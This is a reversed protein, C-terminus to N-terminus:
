MGLALGYIAQTKALVTEQDYETAFHERSKRGMSRRLEPSAILRDVAAALKEIDGAPVLFGNQGDVVIERCGPVDYAVLPRGSAAAEVLVRPVGEGYRTPLIVVDVERLLAAMDDVHGLLEVAGRGACDDLYAQSVADPNGEDISGAILFHVNPLEAYRQGIDVFDRIGKAWLLRAAFLLRCGDQEAVDSAVAFRKGDVGSGRILHTREAPMLAHRKFVAVDDPNQLILQTTRGALAVKLLGDVLRRLLPRQESSYVTGMGAVANVVASVGVLKAALSGYVVCKITFHHVLDPRERRYIRVLAALPALESLPNVSRRRLPLELWRFGAAELREVYPGTPSLLVVDNGQRQLYEALGLRFNFLYWDTNAVLLIKKATM